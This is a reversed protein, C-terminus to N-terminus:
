IWLERFSRNGFCPMKSILWAYSFFTWGANFRLVIIMGIVQADAIPLLTLPDVRRTLGAVRKREM